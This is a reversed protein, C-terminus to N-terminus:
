RGAGYRRPHRDRRNWNELEFPECAIRILERASFARDHAAGDEPKIERGVLNLFADSAGNVLRTWEDSDGGSSTAAAPAKAQADAIACLAHPSLIEPV